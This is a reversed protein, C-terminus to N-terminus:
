EDASIYEAVQNRILDQFKVTRNILGNIVSRTMKTYLKGDKDKHVIILPRIMRGSDTYFLVQNNMIDVCVTTHEHLRSNRRHEVYIDRLAFVNIKSCGFWKGNVFVTGM